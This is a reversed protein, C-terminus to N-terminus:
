GEEGAILLWEDAKQTEPNAEEACKMCIPDYLIHVKIDPKKWQAYHKGPEDM